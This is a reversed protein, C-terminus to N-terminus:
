PQGPLLACSFRLAFCSVSQSSPQPPLRCSQQELAVQPNPPPSCYETRFCCVRQLRLELWNSLLHFCMCILETVLIKVKLPTFSGSGSGLSLGSSTRPVKAVM